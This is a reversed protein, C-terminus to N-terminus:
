RPKADASRLYDPLVAEPSVGAVGTALRCVQLASVAHSRSQPAAVRIGSAELEERFRVSGDGAALPSIGAARVRDAVEGPPAAFPAWRERGDEYLAAFLEGRRADILALALREGIGAALAAPSSVPRVRLGAAAALARATAIGIRLGTFTGPGVGVAIAELDAFGVGARDMVGAVAPMLEAAHGPRELLREPAPLTEFVEGDARLVCASTAATSTDFGLLSV